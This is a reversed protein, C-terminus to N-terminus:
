QFAHQVESVVKKFNLVPYIVDQISVSADCYDAGLGQYRVYHADDVELIDLVDDCALAVKQQEYEVIILVSDVSYQPNGLDFYRATDIVPLLEGRYNLLGNVKNTASPMHTINVM